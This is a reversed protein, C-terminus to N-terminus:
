LIPRSLSGGFLRKGQRMKLGPSRRPRNDMINPGRQHAAFFYVSSTSNALFYTSQRGDFFSPVQRGIADAHYLGFRGSNRMQVDSLLTLKASSVSIDPPSFVLRYAFSLGFFGTRLGSAITSKGELSTVEDFTVAAASNTEVELQLAYGDDDFIATTTANPNTTFTILNRGGQKQQISTACHVVTIAALMVWAFQLFLM